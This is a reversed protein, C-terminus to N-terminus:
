LFSPILTCKSSITTPADDKSKIKYERLCARILNDIKKEETNYADRWNMELLRQKLKAKINAPNKVLHPHDRIVSNLTTRLQFARSEVEEQKSSHDVTVFEGSIDGNAEPGAEPLYPNSNEEIKQDRKLRKQSNNVKM